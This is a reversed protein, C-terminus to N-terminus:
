ARRLKSGPYYFRLIEGAKFGKRALGEAGYQCMGIGHGFGRGAQLVIQNDENVLEFFTSQIKRGTPDLTLRLNEAELEIQRGDADILTLRVPRGAPTAEKVEIRDITDMAEFRPYRDRLQRTVDAKNIRVPGWHYNPANRCHECRVNGALPPIVANRRIARASQTWGGCASSYYTCFIREGEPSDWTCVLGQTDHVARAAQPVQKVRALGPYVQSSETATVDWERKVGGTRKQYWAYTRAAVAQARFTERHFRRDLEAAVVAVLYDEVDVLNVVSGTGDSRRVFRLRGRFHRVKGDLRLGVLRDGCPVLDVVTLPVTLHLQPFRIRGEGFVVTLPSAAVSEVLRQSSAPDALDYSGQVVAESERVDDLLLVRISRDKPSPAVSEPQSTIPEPVSEPTRGCGTCISVWCALAAPLYM